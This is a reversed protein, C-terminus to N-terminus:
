EAEEMKAFSLALCQIDEIEDLQRSLEKEKEQSPTDTVLVMMDHNDAPYVTCEDINTLERQVNDTRGPTPYVLYSCVPM